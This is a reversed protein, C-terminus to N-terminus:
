KRGNKFHIYKNANENLNDKIVMKCSYKEVTEKDVAYDECCNSVINKAEQETYLGAHAVNYTYGQSNKGWFLYMSDDAKSHRKCVIYYMKEM